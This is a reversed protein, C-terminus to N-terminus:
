SPIYFLFSVKHDMERQADLAFNRSGDTYPSSFLTEKMGQHFPGASYHHILLETCFGAYSSAGNVFSFPLSSKVAGLLLNYGEPGGVKEAFHIALVELCHRLIDAHLAFTGNIDEGFSIFTQYRPEWGDATRSKLDSAFQHADESPLFEM